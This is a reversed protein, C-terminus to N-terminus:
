QEAISCSGDCQGYLRRYRRRAWYGYCRTAVPYVGPWLLPRWLWGWRTHQWAAVNAALGVLWQGNSRRLHLNRLLQDRQLGPAPDDSSVLQHIDVLQLQPDCLRALQSIERRCLPCRGDYYLHELETM